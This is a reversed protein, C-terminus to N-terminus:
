GTRRFTRTATVTDGSSRIRVDITLTDGNPSLSLIERAEADPAESIIYLSGEHWGAQVEWLGRQRTGWSVDRYDRGDYFVGMSDRSQEIDLQQARLVPFDQTVYGLMGGRARLLRRSPAEDSDAPVLTWTGSLDFTQPRQAELPIGGCAALALCGLLAFLARLRRIQLGLAPGPTHSATDTM